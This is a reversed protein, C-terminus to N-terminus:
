GENDNANTWVKVSREYVFGLVCIEEIEAYNVLHLNRRGIGFELRQALANLDVANQSYLLLFCVYLCLYLPARPAIGSSGGRRPKSKAWAECGYSKHCGKHAGMPGGHARLPAGHSGM